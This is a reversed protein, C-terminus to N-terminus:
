ARSEPAADLAEIATREIHVRSTLEVRWYSPGDGSRCGLTLSPASLIRFKSGAPKREESIHRHGHLVLTVGLEDFLRAVAKSDDLRMGLEPSARRGIGPPLPVVHHHLGVIRHTAQQWVSSRAISKLYDTQRKGVAGNHRFFAPQGNVCSDLGVFVAHAEPLARFWAGVPDLELGISHAFSQWAARKSAKTPKPRGSGSMPFTYIDHNGPVVFLMKKRAWPEFTKAVLEWGLGDDTVDGTIFVADPAADGERLSSVARLLRLNSNAPSESLLREVRADTPLASALVDSRRSHVHAALKLLAETSPAAARGGPQTYAYGEDDVLVPLFTERDRLVRFGSTKGLVEEDLAVRPLKGRKVIGARDHFTDGFTSVHFDSCHALTFPTSL